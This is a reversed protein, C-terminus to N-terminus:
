NQTACKGTLRSVLLLNLKPCAHGFYSIRSYSIFPAKPVSAVNGCCGSIYFVEAFELRHIHECIIDMNLLWFLFVSKKIIKAQNHRKLRAELCPSRPNLLHRRQLVAVSGFPSINTSQATRTGLPYLGGQVAGEPVRAQPPSRYQSIKVLQNRLAHM